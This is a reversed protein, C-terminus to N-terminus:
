PSTPTQFLRKQRSLLSKGRIKLLIPFVKEMGKPLALFGRVQIKKPKGTRKAVRARAQVAQDKQVKGEGAM